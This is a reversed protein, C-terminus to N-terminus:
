AGDHRDDGPDLSRPRRDLWRDEVVFDSVRELGPEITSEAPRDAAPVVENLAQHRSREPAM